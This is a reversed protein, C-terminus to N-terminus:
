QLLLKRVLFEKRFLVVAYNESAEEQKKRLFIICKGCFYQSTSYAHEAPLNRMLVESLHYTGKGASAAQLSYLLLFKLSSTMRSDPVFSQLFRSEDHVTWCLFECLLTPFGGESSNCTMLSKSPVNVGWCKHFPEGLLASISWFTVEPGEWNLPKSLLLLSKKKWKKSM